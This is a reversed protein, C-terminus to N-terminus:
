ADVTRRRPRGGLRGNKRSAEAKAPSRAQGGLQGMAASWARSGTTGALLAPVYIDADLKPFHLGFGKPSIEIDSLEEATAKELGEIEGPVLALEVGRGLVIVVRKSGADYRAAMAWGGRRLTAEGRRNAAEIESHDVM